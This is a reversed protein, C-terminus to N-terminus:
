FYSFKFFFLKISKKFQSSNWGTKKKAIATTSPSPICQSYWADSKWCYSGSACTGLSGQYNACQGWLPITGTASSELFYWIDQNIRLNIAIQSINGTSTTTTTTTTTTTPSPICQSYWADSKWCYSGDACDGLSGQYNACQGWLPITASAFVSLLSLYFLILLINSKM